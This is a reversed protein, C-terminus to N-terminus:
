LENFVANQIMMNKVSARVLAFQESTIDTDCESMAKLVYEMRENKPMDILSKYVKCSGNDAVIGIRKQLNADTTRFFRSMKVVKKKVHISRVRLLLVIHLM